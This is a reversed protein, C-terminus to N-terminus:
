PQPTDTTPYSAAMCIGCIGTKPMVDRDMMIYGHEGWTQGWSNRVIWYNKNTTSDTGYGVVAVGHDLGTGCYKNSFVGKVYFQIANAAIAVSVPQQYSAALLTTCDDKPVDTYKVIKPPQQQGATAKCKQDVAKYPYQTETELGGWKIIYEFAQDMLGGNCGENGEARSCDVLQQESFSYLAYKAIKAASEFSAVASFAWCSGCQQQNKVPNVAGQTRWDWQAPPAAQELAKVPAPRYKKNKINLGTYKRLFEESTLDAFLNLGVKYSTETHAKIKLYNAFYVGLRYLEEAPTKYTKTNTLKWTQFAKQVHAPVASQTLSQRKCHFYGLASVAVALLLIKGLIFKM